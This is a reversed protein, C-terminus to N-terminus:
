HSHPPPAFDPGLVAAALPERKAWQAKLADIDLEIDYAPPHGPPLYEVEALRGCSPCCYEIIRCWDADPAFTFEYKEADLIPAHIEEPMRERVLLGEKYNSRASGIEHGCGACEWTEKDLDVNLAATVFVKM